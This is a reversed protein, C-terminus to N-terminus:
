ERLTKRMQFKLEHDSISKNRIKADRLLLEEKVRIEEDSITFEDNINDNFHFEHVFHGNESEFLKVSHNEFTILLLPTGQFEIMIVSDILYTLM